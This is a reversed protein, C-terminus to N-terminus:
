TLVFEDFLPEFDLFRRCFHDPFMPFESQTLCTKFQAYPILKWDVTEGEQLTVSLGEERVRLGYFHYIAPIGDWVHTLLPCLDSAAPRLGLEESVERAAGLRPEEGKLVSGGTVEWCLGYPKDPHRQTILINGRDTVTFVMVVHHYVGEPIPAGRVLDLGLPNGERDVGDWVEPPANLGRKEAVPYPDCDNFHWWENYYPLFGAAVMAKELRRGNAAKEPGYKDYDRDPCAAFEDFDTPMPLSTGDSRVLTVDVASGRNHKSSGGHTPDAVYDDNPCVQWMKFQASLPRWADWIKLSYGQALLLEQARALRLATGRRLYAEHFDYIARGMFNDAGAYKLDVYVGPAYDAVPVLASLDTQAEEL